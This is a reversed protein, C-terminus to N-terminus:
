GELYILGDDGRVLYLEHRGSAKSLAEGIDGLDRDWYGVGHGNRTYWYDRGAEIAGYNAKDQDYAEQLDDAYGEQFAKCDRLIMEWASPALEAITADELDGDDGSGTSTFFMAEIYGQTFSDLAKFRKATESDGHDLIFEPM